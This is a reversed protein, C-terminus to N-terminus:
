ITEIFLRMSHEKLQSRVEGIQPLFQFRWKNSLITTSGMFGLSFRKIKEGKTSMLSGSTMLSLSLGLGSKLPRRREKSSGLKGNKITDSTQIATL